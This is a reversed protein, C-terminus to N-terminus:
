NAPRTVRTRKRWMIYRTAAKQAITRKQSRASPKAECINEAGNSESREAGRPAKDEAVPHTLKKRCTSTDMRVREFGCEPEAHAAERSDPM